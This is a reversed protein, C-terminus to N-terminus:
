DPLGWPLVVPKFFRAANVNQPVLTTRKREPMARWAKGTWVSPTDTWLQRHCGDCSHLRSSVFWAPTKSPKATGSEAIHSFETSDYPHSFLQGFYLNVGDDTAFYRDRKGRSRLYRGCEFCGVSRRLHDYVVWGGGLFGVFQIAALWYGWSGAEIQAAGGRGMRLTQNGLYLELYEGFTVLESARQGGPVTLLLYESYYIAVNTLAALGIFALLMWRAPHLHTQHCAIYFGSAAAVGCFVAGVPVVFLITLTFLNFGTLSQVVAVVAVTAVMSVVGGMLAFLPRMDLRDRGVSAHDGM